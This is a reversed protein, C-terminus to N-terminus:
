TRLEKIEDKLTAVTEVLENVVKVLPSILDLYSLSQIEVGDAGIQKYHLGLYENKFTAEVEQAIFGFRKTLVDNKFKYEVPNLKSLLNTSYALDLGHIDQKQTIDSSQTM